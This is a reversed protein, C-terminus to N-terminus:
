WRGTGVPHSMRSLDSNVICIFRPKKTMRYLTDGQSFKDLFSCLGDGFGSSHRHGEPFSEKSSPSLSNSLLAQQLDGNRGGEGLGCGM